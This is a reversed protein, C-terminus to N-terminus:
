IVPTFTIGSFYANQYSPSSSTVVIDFTEGSSTIEHTFCHTSSDTGANIYYTTSDIVWQGTRATGGTADVWAGITVDWTGDPVYFQYTATPGDYWASLFSGEMQYDFLCGTDNGTVDDSDLRTVNVGGATIEVTFDTADNNEDVLSYASSLSAVSTILNITETPADAVVPTGSAFSVHVPENTVESVLSALLTDKIIWDSGHATFTGDTITATGFTASEDATYVDALDSGKYHTAKVTFIGSQIADFATYWDSLTTAIGDSIDTTYEKRSHVLTGGTLTNSPSDFVGYVEYIIWASDPLTFGTNAQGTSSFWVTKTSVEYNYDTGKTGSFLADRSYAGSDDIYEAM